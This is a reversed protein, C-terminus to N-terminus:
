QARRFTLELGQFSVVGTITDGSTTRDRSIKLHMNEGAACGTITVGTITADNMQLTTGKATDTVTSVTNFAPNDVEADAVCITSVNWIVDGTTAAAFWRVKADVTGTFDAPLMQTAQAFFMGDSDPFDLSASQAAGSSSNKCTPTPALSTGLDWFSSATANNCGAGAFWSKQVTTVVNGTGEADLTKNTLTDTTAKGVITDTAAFLTATVTGLAGTPPALTITGSTANRFGIDGVNSGATGLLLSTAGGHVAKTATLTDTAFTLDSDDTLGGSTTAFTVRGSTLTSMLPASSFTQVGTFTQAADTRAITATTTPFTMVTSDTGTLAISNNITLTKSSAGFALTGANTSITLTRTSNNIGTGGNAAALIGTVDASALDVASQTVTMTGSSNAVHLLGNAAAAGWLYLSGAAPADAAAAHRVTNASLGPSTGESVTLTGAVGTGPATSIGGAGTYSFTTGDDSALSDDITTSATYKPIVNTVGANITGSGAPAAWTLVGNGAVDTLFTGAAGVTPPLSYIINAGQAVAKFASYNTGSGSPELFRFESATTSGGFNLITTAAAGINLATAAGGFNITTATTNLLAFTTSGTVLSTTISPSTLTKNTFTSTSGLTPVSAANTGATTVRLDNSATITQAADNVTLTTANGNSAFDGIVTTSASDTAKLGVTANNNGGFQTLASTGIISYDSNLVLTTSTISSTTGNWSIVQDSDKILIVTGNGGTLAGIKIQTNGAPGNVIIGATSAARINVTTGDDTIQSPGLNGSGDISKPLGNLPTINTIGGGGGLTEWTSPTATCVRAHGLASDFYVQGKRSCAPASAFVQLYKAVLSTPAAAMAEVSMFTGDPALYGQLQPERQQGLTVWPLCILLALVFFFRKM